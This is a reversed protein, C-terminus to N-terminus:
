LTLCKIVKEMEIKLSIMFSILIVLAADILVLKYNM